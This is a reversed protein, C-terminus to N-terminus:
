EEPFIVDIQTLKDAMDYWLSIQDGAKLTVQDLRKEDDLIVGNQDVYLVPTKGTTRFMRKTSKDKVYIIYETYTNENYTKEQTRINTITMQKFEKKQYFKFFNYSAVLSLSM